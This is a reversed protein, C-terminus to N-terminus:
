KSFLEVLLNFEIPLDINKPISKLTIEFKDPNIELWDPTKIKKLKASLGEFIKKNTSKKNISIVDGVRLIMSPSSVKRSNLLIHGDTILKKGQRRSVAIGARYLINDLRRELLEALKESTSVPNTKAKNFIRLLNKETLGYILKVKQKEKLQQGFDSLAKKGGSPGHMGPPYPKRTVACKPSLCREGKLLLKEGIRREKKEKVRLM